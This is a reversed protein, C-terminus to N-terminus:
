SAYDLELVTQQDYNPRNVNWWYWVKMGNPKRAECGAIRGEQWLELVIKRFHASYSMGAIRALEYTSFTADTQELHRQIEAKRVGRSIYQHKM